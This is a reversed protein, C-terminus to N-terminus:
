QNFKKHQQFFNQAYCSSLLIILILTDKYRYKVNAGLFVWSLAHMACTIAPLGLLLYNMKQYRGFEGLRNTVLWDLHIPPGGPSPPRPPPVPEEKGDEEKKWQSYPSSQSM